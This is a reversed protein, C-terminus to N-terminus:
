GNSPSSARSRKATTRKRPAKATAARSGATPGQQPKAQKAPEASGAQAAAMAATFVDTAAESKAEAFLDEAAEALEASRVRAEHLGLLAAKLAAKAVPRARQAVEPGLVLLATAGTFAGLLFGLPFM